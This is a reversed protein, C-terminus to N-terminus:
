NIEKLDEKLIWGIKGDALKIKYWNDISELLKVKAGEHLEFSVDGSNAPASKVAVQQAFVIAYNNTKVYEYNSYAFIVFVM